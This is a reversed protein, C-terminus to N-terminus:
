TSPSAKLASTRAATARFRAGLRYVARPRRAAAPAEFAPGILYTRRNDRGGRMRGSNQLWRAARYAIWRQADTRSTLGLIEVQM